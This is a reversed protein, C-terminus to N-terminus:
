IQEDKKTTNSGAENIRKSQGAKAAVELSPDSEPMLGAEKFWTNAEKMDSLIDEPNYGAERQVNQLSTFGSRVALRSATIEKLPDIMERRPPTWRSRIILKDDIGVAIKASDVFWSFTRDCFKPIFMLHQWFEVVKQFELAGMRGSSFNVNSLDGTLMEYTMLYGAAIARHQTKVFEGFGVSAPVSGMEVSEGQKLYNIAGPEISEIDEPEDGPGPEDIGNKTVFIPHCSQAKKGLLEADEYDDLDRQKLITSAAFPVGRTQGAREVDYVHIIDEIRVFSSKAAGDSPHRDYIWYGSKKNADDFEVGYLIYGGSSTKETHRTVDIYDGELVMLQLGFRNVESKVRKRIILVEGSVVITRVALHQLGFYDYNGDYDASLSTAWEKWAANIAELAHVKNKGAKIIRGKEVRDILYPTPIIGTGVVNNAITVPAKKAYPNNISLERSRSVLNKHDRNIVENVNPNNRSLWNSHRRGEAAGEYRRVQNEMAYLRARNYARRYGAKPYLYGIAKDIFNM